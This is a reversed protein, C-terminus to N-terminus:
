GRECNFFFFFILLFIFLLLFLRVTNSNNGLQLQIELNKQHCKLAEQFNGHNSHMNGISGYANGAASKNGSQLAIELKKETNVLAELDNGLSFHAAGIGGYALQM